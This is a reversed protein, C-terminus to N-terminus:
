NFIDLREKINHILFQKDCNPTNKYRIYYYNLFAKNYESLKPKTLISYIIDGDDGDVSIDKQTLHQADPESIPDSVASVPEDTSYEAYAGGAHADVTGDQHYYKMTKADIAIEYKKLTKIHLYKRKGSNLDDIIKNRNNEIYKESNNVMRRRQVVQNIIKTKNMNYYEKLYDKRDVM